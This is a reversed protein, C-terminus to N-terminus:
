GADPPPTKLLDVAIVAEWIAWVVVEAIGGTSWGALGDCILIWLTFAAVLLWIVRAFPRGGPKQRALKWGAIGCLIALVFDGLGNVALLVATHLHAPTALLLLFAGLTGLAGLLMSVSLLIFCVIPYKPTPASIM